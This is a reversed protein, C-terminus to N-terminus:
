NCSSLFMSDLWSLGEQDQMPFTILNDFSKIRKPCTRSTRCCFCLNHIATEINCSDTRSFRTAESKSVSEKQHKKIGQTQIENKSQGRQDPHNSSQYIDSHTGCLQTTFCLKVFLRYESGASQENLHKALCRTSQSAGGGADFHGQLGHGKKRGEGSFHLWLFIYTPDFRM